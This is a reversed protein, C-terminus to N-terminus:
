LIWKIDGKINDPVPDLGGKKNMPNCRIIRKCTLFFGGIIGFRKFAIIGYTSCSPKFICSKPLIPSILIKYLYILGIFILKFPYTIINVIKKM